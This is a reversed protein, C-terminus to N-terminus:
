GDQLAALNSLCRLHIQLRGSGRRWAGPTPLTLTSHVLPVVMLSMLHAEACSELPLRWIVSPV